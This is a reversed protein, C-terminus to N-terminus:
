GRPDVVECEYDHKKRLLRCLLGQGGAVDAIYRVRSRYHNVIFESVVEFRTPDGHLAHQHRAM